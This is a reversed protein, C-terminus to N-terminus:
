KRNLSLAEKRDDDKEKLFLSRSLREAVDDAPDERSNSFHQVDGFMIKQLDEKPIKGTGFVREYEFDFRQLCTPEEMQPLALLFITSDNM